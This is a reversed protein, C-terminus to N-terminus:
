HGFTLDGLRRGFEIHEADDILQDRLVIVKYDILAQRVARVEDDSAAAVDIGRIEAGFHPGFEDVDLEVGSSVM